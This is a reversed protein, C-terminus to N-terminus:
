EYVAVITQTYIKFIYIHYLVFFQRFNILIRIYYYKFLCLSSLHAVLRM